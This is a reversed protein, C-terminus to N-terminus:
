ARVEQAMRLLCLEVTRQPDSLNSKLALDTQLCLQQIKRLAPLQINRAARLLLQAPYSSRFGFLEMLYRESKGYELALRAGYLRQMQRTVASMIAVPENKMDFLDRVLLLAREYQRNLLCDTLEFVDAELVRSGLADIDAKRIISRRTGAAIKEVETVLSTMSTGCLFLMYECEATHINKKLATFRRKLWPILDASSAQEFLVIEGYQELIKYLNLRKDPKFELADFYFVMCVYPPLNSLIEPLAEKLEGAPQLLKYDRVVVLKCESGFPITDVADYLTQLDIHEADLLIEEGGCLARLRELYHAKLYDEQGYFVYLSGINGAAVDAKLKGYATNESKKTYAM